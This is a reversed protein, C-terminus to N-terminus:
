VLIYVTEIEVDPEQLALILVTTSDMGGSWPILVKKKLM